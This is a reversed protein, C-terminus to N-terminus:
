KSGRQSQCGIKLRCVELHMGTIYEPRTKKGRRYIIGIAIHCKIVILGM